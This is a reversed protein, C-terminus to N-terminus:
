RRAGEGDPLRFALRGKKDSRMEAFDPDEALENLTAISIPARDLYDAAEKFKGQLAYCRALGLFPASDVDRSRGLELARKYDKIAARLDFIRYYIEGRDVYLKARNKASSIKSDYPGLLRRRAKSDRHRALLILANKALERVRSETLPELRKKLASSLSLDLRTLTDVVETKQQVGLEGGLLVNALADLAQADFAEPVARFFNLIAPLHRSARPTELIDIVGSMVGPQTAKSNALAALAVGVLEQDELAFVFLDDSGPYTALSELASRRLEGTENAYIERLVPRAREQEACGQLAVVANLRAAPSGERALRVLPDTVAPTAVGRLAFAIQKARFKQAQDSEVSESDSLGLRTAPDIWRVLLPASAPGLEVLRGRLKAASSDRSEKPVSELALVVDEVARRLPTAKRDQERRLEILLRELSKPATEGDQFGRSSPTSRGGPLPIAQVSAAAFCAAAVTIIFNRSGM